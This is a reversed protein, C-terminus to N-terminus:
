TEQPVQLQARGAAHLGLLAYQTVSNDGDAGKDWATTRTLPQSAPTQDIPQGGTVQLVKRVQVEGENKDEGVKMGYGWTGENGQIDLLWQASQRMRPFYTPDGYAQVLMCYIGNQYTNMVRQPEYDALYKRLVADFDPFKEHANAHV